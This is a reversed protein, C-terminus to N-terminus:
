YLNRLNDESIEYVESSNHTTVYNLLSHFLWTAELCNNQILNPLPSTCIMISHKADELKVEYLLGLRHNREFNDITQVVPIIETTDLVTSSSNM